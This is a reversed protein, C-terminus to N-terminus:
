LHKALYLFFNHPHSSEAARRLRKKKVNKTIPEYLMQEWHPARCIATSMKRSGWPRGIESLTHKGREYQARRRKVHKIAPM